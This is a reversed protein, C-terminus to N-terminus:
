RRKYYKLIIHGDYMSRDKTTKIVFTIEDEKIYYYFCDYNDDTSQLRPINLWIDDNKGVLSAELYVINKADEIKETFKVTKNNPLNGVHIVKRYYDRM